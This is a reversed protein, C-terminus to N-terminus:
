HHPIVQFQFPHNLELLLITPNLKKPLIILGLNCNTVINDSNSNSSTRDSDANAYTNNDTDANASANASTNNNTNTNSNTTIHASASAARVNNASKIAADIVEEIEAHMWDPM